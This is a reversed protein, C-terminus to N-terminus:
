EEGKIRRLMGKRKEKVEDDVCYGKESTAMFYGFGHLQVLDKLVYARQVFAEKLASAEETKSCLDHYTRLADSYEQDLLVEECLATETIKEGRDSYGRKLQLYATSKKRALEEKAKDREAM